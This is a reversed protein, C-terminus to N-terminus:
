QKRRRRMGGLMAAGLGLLALSGPEPVLSVNGGTADVLFDTYAGLIIGGFYTGFTGDVQGAFRGSFTNNAVLMLEGYMDIFSPGGSDGGGIGSERDNPLAPTCARYRTCFTDRGDGDFDAYYVEAPGYFDQEDDGDFLDMYNEGSRKITFDPNIYYGKTGDGSTGYGAMMIHTGLGVEGAFVKYIKASAPADKSLTIVSVDDNVCGLSGDPCNNFGQYNKDVAIASAAILANATGNSNFLVRVDNGPKTIDVYHGNGDTDVCHGASIVQRKGVLAGSCIYSQQEGNEMYRINISVVGSLASDSTNQDVHADPTDPLAGSTITPTVIGDVIGAQAAGSVGFLAGAAVVVGLLKTSLVNRNRM